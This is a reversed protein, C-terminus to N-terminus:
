IKLVEQKEINEDSFVKPSGMSFFATNIYELATRKSLGFKACIEWALLDKDITKERKVCDSFVAKIRAIRGAREFAALQSATQKLAAM